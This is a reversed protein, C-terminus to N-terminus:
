DSKAQQYSPAHLLEVKLNKASEDGKVDAADIRSRSRASLCLRLGPPLKVVLSLTGAFADALHRQFTWSSAACFLARM